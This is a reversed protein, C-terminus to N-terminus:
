LSQIILSEKPHSWPLSVASGEPSDPGAWHGYGAVDALQYLSMVKAMKPVGVSFFFPGEM